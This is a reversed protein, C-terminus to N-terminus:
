ARKIKCEKYVQDIAEIILDLRDVAEDYSIANAENPFWHFLLNRSRKWASWLKDPLQKGGCFSSLKDYVWDDDKYKSPLQPNLSKGIRFHKGRYEAETIFKMDLFLNKLFGEYAKAAPFVVFSFDHFKGKYKKADGLILQSEVLLEKVDQELYDWWVKKELNLKM